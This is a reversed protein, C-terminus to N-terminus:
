IIDTITGQVKFIHKEKLNNLEDRTKVFTAIISIGLSDTVVQLANMSDESQDLLFSIDAKIFEPNLEKLYTYDNSESTFSNIGFGFNYKKFLDVFGKLTPTNNIAFNNSVEFCLKFNLTKAYKAFLSSLESFAKVDKIFENSLHISCIGNELEKHQTTLLKKIAFMYIKSVLRLNIASAIFDAYFYHKNEGGNIDFTMIYHEIKKTKVDKTPHFKLSFYNKEMAEELIKRWQEKGMININNKDEYIYINTTESAKAHSLANDAHALLERVNINPRYRYVGMNIEVGSDIELSNTQLLKNFEDNIKQTIKKADDTECEPIMLTFETGNVRAIVIDEFKECVRNFINALEFFIEDARKRGLTQNLVEAGNLAIFIIAGGDNKNELKILEPLKLMLYRRNFLKTVPDKYLLEHNRKAAENAKKFIEEAKYVMANMANAVEKFETTYPEKEQIVFENRLIAEAQHQINKLPKLIFHLMISLIMLALSVFVLFLYSLKIFMQYLSKYVVGIDGVVKVEGVIKWGSSVDAKVSKLELNTFDIFWQPVSELPDNDIQIYNFKGDNSKFEILKYYGSDFESDIITTILATDDGAQALKNTLTSINNVTTEYLSVMMDKKTSQYNIAMISGLMIIIIISFALAM